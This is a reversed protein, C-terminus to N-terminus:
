GGSAEVAQLQKYRLHSAGGSEAHAHMAVNRLRKKSASHSTKMRGYLQVRFDADRSLAAVTKLSRLLVRKAVTTDLNATM